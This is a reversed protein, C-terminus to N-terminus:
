TAYFNYISGDGSIHNSARSDLYWLTMSRSEISNIKALYVEIIQLIGYKEEHIKDNSAFDYSKDDLKEIKVQNAHNSSSGYKCRQGERQIKMQMKKVQDM